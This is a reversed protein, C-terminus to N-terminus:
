GERGHAGFGEDLVGEWCEGICVIRKLGEDVGLGEFDVVRAVVLGVDVAEITGEFAKIDGARASLECRDLLYLLFYGEVSRPVDEVGEVPLAHDGASRLAWSADEDVREDSVEPADADELFFEARAREGHLSRAPCDESEEVAAELDDGGFLVLIEREPARDRQECAVDPLM